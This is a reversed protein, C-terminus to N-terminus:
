KPLPKKDRLCAGGGQSSLSRQSLVCLLLDRSDDVLDLEGEVADFGDKQISYGYLGRYLNVFSGDTVTDHRRTGLVPMISIRAGPPKTLVNLTLALPAMSRIKTLFSRVDALVRNFTARDIVGADPAWDFHRIDQDRIDPFKLEVYGKLAEFEISSGLERTLTARILFLHERAQQTSVPTWSVAVDPAFNSVGQTKTIELAAAVARQLIGANVSGDQRSYSPRPMVLMTAILVVVWSRREASM